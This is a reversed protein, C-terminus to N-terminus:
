WESEAVRVKAKNQANTIDSELVYVRLPDNSQNLTEEAAVTQVTQSYSYPTDDVKPTTTAAAVTSDTVQPSKVDTKWIAMVNALGTAIAAAAAATKVWIEGPTQTFAATAGLYTNILAQATATTKYALTNEEFLSSMSGMLNEYTGLESRYLATMQKNRKKDDANQGEIMKKYAKANDARLKAIEAEQAATDYGAAKQKEIFQELLAIKNDTMASYAEYEAQYNAMVQDHYANLSERTIEGEEPAIPTEIAALTNTYQSELEKM